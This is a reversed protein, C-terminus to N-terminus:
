DSYSVSVSRYFDTLDHLKRFIHRNVKHRPYDISENCDYYVQSCYDSTNVTIVTILQELM